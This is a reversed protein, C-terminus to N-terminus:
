IGSLKIRKEGFTAFMEIDGGLAEVYRRLTSLLFDDRNEIHSVQAQAMELRDALEQQTLGIEKRLAKLNLEMVAALAEQRIEKLEDDTFHERDLEELTRIM